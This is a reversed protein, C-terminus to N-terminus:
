RFLRFLSRTLSRRARRKLYSGPGRTAAHADGAARSVLYSARQVQRLISRRRAM